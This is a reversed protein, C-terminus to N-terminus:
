RCLTVLTWAQKRVLSLTRESFLHTVFVSELTLNEETLLRRKINESKLGCVLRDRLSDNLFEGFECFKALNKLRAVFGKIDEQQEQHASHFKYREAIVLRKPSYHKKLEAVLEDYSKQSPLTPALLDRLVGYAEGGILTLLLAVKKEANAIENCNFLQELRELYSSIEGERANFQEINGILSM